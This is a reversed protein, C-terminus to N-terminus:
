GTVADLEAQIGSLWSGETPVGTSVAPAADPTTATDVKVQPVGYGFNAEYLEKVKAALEKNTLVCNQESPEEVSLISTVNSQAGAKGKLAPGLTPVFVWNAYFDDKFNRGFLKGIAKHYNLLAEGFSAGFTKATTLQLPTTALFKNDTSVPMVLYQTKLEITTRQTSYTDKDYPGIYIPTGNFVKRYMNLPGRAIILLRPKQSIFGPITINKGEFDFPKWASDPTFNSKEANENSIFLGFKSPNPSSSNAVQMFARVQSTEFQSLDIAQLFNATTM